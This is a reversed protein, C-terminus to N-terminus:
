AVRKRVDVYDPSEKRKKQREYSSEFYGERKALTEMMTSRAAIQRKNM